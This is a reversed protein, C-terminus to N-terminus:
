AWALVKKRLALKYCEYIHTLHRIVGGFDLYNSPIWGVYGDPDAFENNSNIFADDYSANSNLKKIVQFCYKSKKDKDSWGLYGRKAQGIIMVKDGKSLNYYNVNDDATSTNYGDYRCGPAINEDENITAIKGIFSNSVEFAQGGLALGNVENGDLVLGM